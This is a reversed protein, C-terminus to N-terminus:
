GRNTLAITNNPEIELSKNLDTFAEKYRGMMYYTRGRYSLTTANNPEIELSEILDSLSENYRGIMYHFIGRNNLATIDVPKKYKANKQNIIKHQNHDNNM